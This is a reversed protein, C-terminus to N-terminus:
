EERRSSMQERYQSPTLGTHKKFMQGFYKVDEYGVSVAIEGIKAQTSALHEMARQMRTRAVYDVFKVGTEKKFLESLHNPHLHVHEAVQTLSLERGVQEEIFVIARQVHSLQGEELVQRCYKMLDFLHQFLGDSGSDDSEADYRYPPIAPEDIAPRNVASLVRDAWRRAALAVSQLAARVTQPTAEEDALLAEAYQQVWRKLAMPDDELLIACLQKEEEQSIVSKGGKRNEIDAYEWVRSNMLARYAIAELATAYSDSLREPQTMALGGAVTLRCKLVKELRAFDASRQKREFADRAAPVVMVIRGDYLFSACNLLEKVANNVAFRLLAQDQKAAGWGDAEAALVQWQGTPNAPLRDPEISAREGRVVWEIWRQNQEKRKSQYDRSRSQQKEEARQKAKLVTKIIEEPTSTKLLYDSVQQRIAQQTYAFDDYGTLIVVELHPLRRMAEEALQLGTMGSMRIDTLLIDPKELDLRELAEEASAAPELLELGIEQWQIVQSLGNRIIVEDDAIMIKM